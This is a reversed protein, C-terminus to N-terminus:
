IAARFRRSMLQDTSCKPKHPPAADMSEPELYGKQVLLRCNRRHTHDLPTDAPFVDRVYHYTDAGARRIWAALTHEMHRPLRQM